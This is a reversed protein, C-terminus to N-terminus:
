LGPAAFECDQANQPQVASWDPAEWVGTALGATPLDRRRSSEGLRSALQSLSPNHGCILVCSQSAERASLAVWIAEPGASYLEPLLAIRRPDVGCGQAVRMATTRTREAPSAIWCDPIWGRALLLRAMIEAERTGRETLVRDFDDSQPAEPQAQGHRLLILRRTGL